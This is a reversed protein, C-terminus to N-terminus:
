DIPATGIGNSEVARFDFVQLFSEAAADAQKAFVLQCCDLIHREFEGLAFGETDYAFGAGAFGGEAFRQQAQKRHLAAFDAENGAVNQVKVVLAAGHGALGSARFATIVARPNLTRLDRELNSTADPKKVLDTKSILLFDAAQIQANVIHFLTQFRRLNLADVVCLTSDIPFRMFALDRQVQAADALCEAGFLTETGPTQMQEFAGTRPTHRM